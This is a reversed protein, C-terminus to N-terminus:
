EAGTVNSAPKSFNRLFFREASEEIVFDATRITTHLQDALGGYKSARSAWFYTLRRVFFSLLGSLGSYGHSDGILVLHVDNAAAPNEFTRTRGTNRGPDAAIESELFPSQFFCTPAAASGFRAALDGAYDRQHIKLDPITVDLGLGELLHLATQLYFTINPHSDFFRLHTEFPGGLDPIMFFGDAAATNMGDAMSVLATNLASFEPRTAAFGATERIVLFRDVDVGLMKFGAARFARAEHARDWYNNAGNKLLPIPGLQTQLSLLDLDELAAPDNALAGFDPGYTTMAAENGKLALEAAEEISSIWM